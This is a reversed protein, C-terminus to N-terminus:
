YPFEPGDVFELVVYAAVAAIGIGALAGLLVCGCCRIM